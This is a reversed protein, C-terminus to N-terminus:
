PSFLQHNYNQTKNQQSRKAKAIIMDRATLLHYHLFVKIGSIFVFWSLRKHRNLFTQKLILIDLKTSSNPIKQFFYLEKIMSELAIGTALLSWLNALDPWLLCSWWYGSRCLIRLRLCLMCLYCSKKLCITDDTLWIGINFHYFKTTKMVHSKKKM